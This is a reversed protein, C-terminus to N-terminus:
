NIRKNINTQLMDRSIFQPIKEWKDNCKYYDNHHEQKYEKGCLYKMSKTFTYECQINGGYDMGFEKKMQEWSKFKYIKNAKIKM